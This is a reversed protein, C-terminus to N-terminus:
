NNSIKNSNILDQGQYIKITYNGKPMQTLDFADGANTSLYVQNGKANLIEITIVNKSKAANHIAHSNLLEGDQLVQITYNGIPLKALDFNLIPDELTVEDMLDVHGYEDIIEMNMTSAKQVKAKCKELDGGRSNFSYLSLLSMLTILLLTYKSKDLM